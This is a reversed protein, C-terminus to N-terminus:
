LIFDMYNGFLSKGKPLKDCNNSTCIMFSQHKSYNIGNIKGPYKDNSALLFKSHKSIYADHYHTRTAHHPLKIIFYKKWFNSEIKSTVSQNIDGTMLIRNESAEECDQFVISYENQKKRMCYALKRTIKEDIVILESIKERLKNLENKIEEVFKEKEEVSVDKSEESYVIKKFENSLKINLKNLKDLNDSFDSELLETIKSKIKEWESQNKFSNNQPKPPWLVSYRKNSIQFINNTDKELFSINKINGNLIKPIDEILGIIRKALLNGEWTNKLFLYGYIAMETIILNGDKTEDIIYPLYLENFFINKSILESVGSYHDTHFHTILLKKKEAINLDTILDNLIKKVGDKNKSGCDILMKESNNTLVFCDGFGVNYMRLNM